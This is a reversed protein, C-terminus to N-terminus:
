ILQESMNETERLELDLNVLRFCLDSHRREEADNFDRTDEIDRLMKIEDLIENREIAIETAKRMKTGKM